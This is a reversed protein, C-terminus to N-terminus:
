AKKFLFFGIGMGVIAAINVRLSISLIEINFGIASTLNQTLVSLSPLLRVALTGLASGLIGGIIIFALFYGTNGREFTM